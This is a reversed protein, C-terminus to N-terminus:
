GRPKPEHGIARWTESVRARSPDGNYILVSLEQAAMAHLPEDGDPWHRIRAASFRKLCLWYGQSDYVLLKVATRRRNRFVFVTGSM